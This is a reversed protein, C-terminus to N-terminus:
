EVMGEDCVIIDGVLFDQVQGQWALSYLSSGVRNFPLNNLKGEENVIFMPHKIEIMEDKVKLLLPGPPSVIEIYGGVVKQMEELRFTECQPQIELIENTTTVKFAKM